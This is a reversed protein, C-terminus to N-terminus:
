LITESVLEMRERQVTTRLYKFRARRAEITEAEFPCLKSEVLLERVTSMLLPLDLPKEMLARAGGDRVWAQQNSHATIVFVPLTPRLSIVHDLATWGDMEPMNLDLLLLDFAKEYLLEVVHGGHTALSVDYGANRLLKGLSERIGRDDDAVLIRPLPPSGRAAEAPAPEPVPLLIINAMLPFYRETHWRSFLGTFPL